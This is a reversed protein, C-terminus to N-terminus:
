FQFPPLEDGEEANRYEDGSDDNEQQYLWSDRGDDGSDGGFAGGRSNSNGSATAGRWGSGADQNSTGEVDLPSIWRPKRLENVGTSPHRGTAQADRRPQMLPQWHGRAPAPDGGDGEQQNLWSDRSDDIDEDYAQEGFQGQEQEQSGSRSHQRAQLQQTRGRQNGRSQATQLQPKSNEAATRAVAAKRWENASRGSGRRRRGHHGAIVSEGFWSALCEMSIVLRLGLLQVWVVLGCHACQTGCRLTRSHLRAILYALLSTDSPISLNRLCPAAPM